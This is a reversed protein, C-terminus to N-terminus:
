CVDLKYELVDFIPCPYRCALWVILPVSRRGEDDMLRIPVGIYSQEPSRTNYLASVSSITIHKM